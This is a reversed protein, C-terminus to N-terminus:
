EQKFLEEYTRNYFACIKDIESKSFEIKGNLRASIGSQPLNLLEALTGQTHGNRAMEAMLEPYVVVSM